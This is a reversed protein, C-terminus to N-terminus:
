VRIRKVQFRDGVDVTDYSGWPRHVERHNSAQPKGEQKLVDVLVKIAQAQDRQTVLLADETDVVVLNDVGLLSVLRKQAYVLNGSAQLLRTDGRTVNGADDVRGERWVADWSGVDSWGAQLPMVIANDTHEMVAYDISIDPSRAFATAEVRIFDLDHAQTALSQECAQLIEPQFRELEALLVDARFMFMGSNWLYDGSVVYKEAMVVDPKEVFADVAYGGLGLASGKRLYGYATEMRDPVIGLTLLKGSCVLELGQLLVSQFVAVDGIVHDAPLVLLIAQDDHQQAHLAALAIAPATNRACPELLIGQHEQNVLRLQEAVLFRHSENCVVIPAQIGSIGKLRKLTAQFLTDEGVVPLFQKPCQQRSLPWLRTGSGGSLIVPVIEAQM